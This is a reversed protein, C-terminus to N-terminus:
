AYSDVDFGKPIVFQVTDPFVGDPYEAWFVIVPTYEDSICYDNPDRLPKGFSLGRASLMQRIRDLNSESYDWYSKWDNKIIDSVGTSDLIARVENRPLAYSYSLVNICDTLTAEGITTM